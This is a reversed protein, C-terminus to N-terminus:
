EVEKASEGRQPYSDPLKDLIQFEFEQTIIDYDYINLIKRWEKETGKARCTVVKGDRLAQLVLSRENIADQKM